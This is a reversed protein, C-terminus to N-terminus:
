MDQKQDSSHQNAELDHHVINKAHGSGPGVIQVATLISPNLPDAPSAIRTQGELLEM